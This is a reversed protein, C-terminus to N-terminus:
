EALGPLPVPNTKGTDLRQWLLLWLSLRQLLQPLVRHLLWPLPCLVLWMLLQGSKLGFDGREAGAGVLPRLPAKSMQSWGAKDVWRLPKPIYAGSMNM